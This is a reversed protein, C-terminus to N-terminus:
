KFTGLLEKMADQVKLTWCIRQVGSRMLWAEVELTAIFCGLCTSADIPAHELHFGDGVKQEVMEQNCVRCTM